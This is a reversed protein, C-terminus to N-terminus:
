KSTKKSCRADEDASRTMSIEDVRVKEALNHLVGNVYRHGDQSGFERALSVSEDLVVKYPIEPCDLLEFTSIRLITLEVPNLSEIERDLFPSFAQELEELRKPVGYLIRRYYEVDVREMNNVARFQAEIESLEARSMLWQYLSQLALKRARRKGNITQNSVNVKM